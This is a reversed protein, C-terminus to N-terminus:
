GRHLIADLLPLSVIAATGILGYCVWRFVRDNVRGFLRAGLYLGAGYVPGAVISLMLVPLVILGGLLYSATTLVTSFAFYLVINARVIGSPSAGGLWYAVVPPGGAQTAGTFLGSLGGVGVTLLASPRGGYRWGSVLLLLLLIVVAAIGWRVTLPDAQTLALTGLPIGIVAGIMMTGVGRRDAQRWANPILGLAMFGDIILLLPAAIRPGIVSSVLPMFILAGGFGSFGRALGAVFTSVVLFLLQWGSHVALVPDLMPSLFGM